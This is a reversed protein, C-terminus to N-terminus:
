GYAQAMVRAWWVALVYVTVLVYWPAPGAVRAYQLDLGEAAGAAQTYLPDLDRVVAEAV